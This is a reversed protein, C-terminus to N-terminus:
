EEDPENQDKWNAIQAGIAAALKGELSQGRDNALLAHISANLAAERRAYDGAEAETEIAPIAADSWGISDLWGLDAETMGGSKLRARIEGHQMSTM